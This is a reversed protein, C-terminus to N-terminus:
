EVPAFPNKRGVSQEVIPKTFDTFSKFRQDKFLENSLDFKELERLERLFQEGALQAQNVEGETGLTIDSDDNIVFLYYGLAGVIILGILTLGNKVFSTM